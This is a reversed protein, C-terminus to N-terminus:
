REKKKKKDPNAMAEKSAFMRTSSTMITDVVVNKMTIMTIIISMNRMTMIIGMVANMNKMTTINAVM